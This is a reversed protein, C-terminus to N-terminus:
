SGKKIYKNAIRNGNLLFTFEGNTLDFGGNMKIYNITRKNAKCMIYYDQNARMDILLEVENPKLFIKIDEEM